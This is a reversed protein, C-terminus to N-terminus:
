NQESQTDPTREMFSEVFTQIHEVESQPIDEYLGGNIRVSNSKVSTTTLDESVNCDIFTKILSRIEYLTLTTEIHDSVIGMMDDLQFLAKFSLLKKSLVKLLYQQRVM